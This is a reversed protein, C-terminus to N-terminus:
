KKGFYYKDMVFTGFPVLSALLVFFLQKISWKYQNYCLVALIIYGIFLFGHAMGVIMNPLPMEMKYKMYMTIFLALFSIGELLAVLRFTKLM